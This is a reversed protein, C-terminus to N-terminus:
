RNYVWKLLADQVAQANGANPHNVIFVVVVRRGQADLMYGAISRVGALSGTKIHAQGALEAGSLRKKMTGDVAALPLSAILEPMVASRFANVLLLGLNRASIREVRSLGSGNELVLEPFSLGKGALWQRIVRSSKDATAPAGAGVAGLTLFLQRAMVNNSFKNVDRVIESLTPSHVSVLMKAGPGATGDRVTGSFTGGVERWLERFLGLLYQSHGLVSFNRTREGCAGAYSGNFALRAASSGGQAEIKLRGVWDGCPGHDFALNNVIQVQPLFPEPIIRVSRREPDPVFHLRMAKFNVLLADPGTNYPRTPQDDFRAPDFEEAAFYSRDLVLDGRIERVGRARLSRLLLWFNELTLKPDGSGRLVLDGALVDQALPATGLAETVWVYAPGLLELASYTTLLKITSAPNLARDAGASLLPREAGIEHVYFAAASEPVGAQALARALPEPM